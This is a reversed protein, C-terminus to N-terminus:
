GVSADAPFLRSCQECVANVWARRFFGAFASLFERALRSEICNRSLPEGVLPMPKGRTITNKKESPKLCVDERMDAISRYGFDVRRLQQFHEPFDFPAPHNLGRSSKPLDAPLHETVGDRGAAGLV